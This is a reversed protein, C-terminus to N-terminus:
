GQGLLLFIDAHFIFFFLLCSKNIETHFSIVHFSSKVVKILMMNKMYRQL